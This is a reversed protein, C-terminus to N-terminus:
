DTYPKRTQFDAYQRIENQKNQEAIFEECKDEAIKELKTRAKNIDEWEKYSLNVKDLLPYYNKTKEELEAYLEQTKTQTDEKLLLYKEIAQGNVAETRMQNQMKQLQVSREELFHQIKLKHQELGTEYEYLEHQMHKNKKLAKDERLKRIEAIKKLKDHDELQAM